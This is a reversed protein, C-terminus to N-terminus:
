VSKPVTDKFRPGESKLISLINLNSPAVLGASSSITYAIEEILPFYL